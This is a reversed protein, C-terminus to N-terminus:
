CTPDTAHTTLAELLLQSTAAERGVAGLRGQGLPELLKSGGHHELIQLFHQPERSDIGVDGVPLPPSWQEECAVLTVDSKHPQQEVYSGDGVLHVVVPGSWQEDRALLPVLHHGPQQQTRSSALRAVLSGGWQADRALIPVLRHSLKQQALTSVRVRRRIVPRRRQEHGAVFSV